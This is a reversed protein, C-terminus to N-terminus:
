WNGLLALSPLLYLSPTTYWSTGGHIVAVSHSIVASLPEEDDSEGQEPLSSIIAVGAPGAGLVM